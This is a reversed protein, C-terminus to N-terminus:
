GAPRLQLRADGVPFWAAEGPDTRARRFASETFRLVQVHEEVGGLKGLEAEVVIGRAHAAEVVRRTIEINKEFPEGSADIM